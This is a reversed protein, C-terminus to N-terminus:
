DKGSTFILGVGFVRLITNVLPGYPLAAFLITGIMNVMCSLSIRLATTIVMEVNKDANAKPHTVVQVYGVTTKCCKFMDAREKEAADHLAQLKAIAAEDLVGGGGRAGGGM